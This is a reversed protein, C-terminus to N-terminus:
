LHNFCTGLYHDSRYGSKIQCKNVLDLLTDSVLFYDLRAHRRPNKRHWTYRRENKNFIRFTDKLCLTNMMDLLYRRAKPNNINRYNYTDKEPDLVLNLDGCIICYDYSSDEINAKVFEFFQPSDNNPAYITVLKITFDSTTLLISIFNGVEDRVTAGIKYDFKKGILIAVGRSNSRSGHIFCEGAWLKKISKLDDNVWHTDQLCLIDPNQETLYNLVDTCKKLDGLGQCNVSMIKLNASFM